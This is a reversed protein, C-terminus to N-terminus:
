GVAELHFLPRPDVARVAQAWALRALRLGVALGCARRRPDRGALVPGHRADVAHDSPRRAASSRASRTGSTPTAAPRVRGDGAARRRRAPAPFAVEFDEKLRGPRASLLIIRSALTLAEGLDHTVFLVTQREREWIDSCRGCADRAQHPHRARRLARGDAPDRAGHDAHADAGRAPAHRGVAIRPLRGDFGALGASRSRAGCRRGASPARCAPSRSGTASIRRSPAGRFCPTTSSSTASAAPEGAGDAVASTRRHRDRRRARILGAVMNLITSKGCGSPGLLAVFEGQRVDFSVNEVAVVSSKGGYVKDLDRVAIRM